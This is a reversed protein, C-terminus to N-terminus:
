SIIQFNIVWVVQNEGGFFKEIFEQKTLEPYGERSLESDPMDFLWEQYPKQTLRLYGKKKGGNRYSKDCFPIARSEEFYKLFTNARSDKWHRRTVTKQGLLLRHYTKGFSIAIADREQTQYRM